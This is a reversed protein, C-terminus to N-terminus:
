DNNNIIRLYAEQEGDNIIRDYSTNIKICGYLMIMFGVLITFGFAAAM